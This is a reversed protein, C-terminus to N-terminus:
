HGEGILHLKYDLNDVKAQFNQSADVGVIGLQPRYGTPRFIDIIEDTRRLAVADPSVISRLQLFSLQADVEVNVPQYVNIQTLSKEIPNINFTASGTIYGWIFLQAYDDETGGSYFNIKQNADCGIIIWTIDSPYIFTDTSGHMRVGWWQHTIKSEHFALIGIAGPCIDSLDITQWSNRIAPTRDIPNTFYTICPTRAYGVLYAQFTLTSGVWIQAKIDADVGVHAWLHTPTPTNGKLDSTSGFPRLGIIEIGDQHAIHIFLAKTDAPLHDQLPTGDTWQLDQWSGAAPIRLLTHDLPVFCYPPIYEAHHHKFIPSASPQEEAQKTGLFYFYRTECIPWNPKIFTHILTDGIEEQENEEFNVFCWRTAYPLSIGRRILEM